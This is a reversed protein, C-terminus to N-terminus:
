EKWHRHMPGSLCLMSFSRSDHLIDIRATNVVIIVKASIGIIGLTERNEVITTEPDIVDIETGITAVTVPIELIVIIGRIEEMEPIELIVLMERTVFMELIEITGIVDKVVTAHIGVEGMVFMGQIGCKEVESIVIVSGTEIM